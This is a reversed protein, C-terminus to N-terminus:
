QRMSNRYQNPTLSTITKFNKVFISSDSYGIHAAIDKITMNTKTLLEKAQDIKLVTIYKAPSIGLHRKFQQSLNNLSLSFHEAVAGLYFDPETFHEMIYSQIREM